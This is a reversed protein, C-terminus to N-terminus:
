VAGVRRQSIGQGTHHKSATKPYREPRKKYRAREAALTRVTAHQEVATHTTSHTKERERERNGTHRVTLGTFSACRVGDASGRRGARRFTISRGM